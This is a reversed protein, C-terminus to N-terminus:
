QEIHGCISFTMPGSLGGMQSMYVLVLVFDGQNVHLPNGSHGPCSGLCTDENISEMNTLTYMSFAFKFSPNLALVILELDYNPDGWIMSLFLNGTAPAKGMWVLKIKGASTWKYPIDCVCKTPGKASEVAPDGFLAERPLPEATDVEYGAEQLLAFFEEESGSREALERFIHALEEKDVDSHREVASLGCVSCLSGALVMVGILIVSRKV